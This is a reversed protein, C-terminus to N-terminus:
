QEYWWPGRVRDRMLTRRQGSIARCSTRWCCASTQSDFTPRLHALDCASAHSRHARKSLSGIVAVHAPHTAYVKYAAENAFEAVIVYDHNREPDLGADAGCQLTAIEAIEKSMANLGATLAAATAPKDIDDKFKLMVIHRLM